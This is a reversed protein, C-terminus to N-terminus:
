KGVLDACFAPIKDVGGAATVLLEYKPSGPDLKGKEFQKCAAVLQGRPVTGTDSPSPGPGSAAPAPASSATSPTPTTTTTAGSPATTRGTSPRVPPVTTPGGAGPATSTGPAASPAPVTTPTAGATTTTGAPASEGPSGGPTRSNPDSAGPRPGISQPPPSPARNVLTTTVAAATGTVAVAALGAVM